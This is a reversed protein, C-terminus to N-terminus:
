HSLCLTGLRLNIDNVNQTILPWTITHSPRTYGGIDEEEWGEDWDGRRGDGGGRVLIEEAVSAVHYAAQPIGAEWGGQRRQHFDKGAGEM